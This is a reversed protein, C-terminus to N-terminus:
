MHLNSYDNVFQSFWLQFLSMTKNVFIALKNYQRLYFKNFNIQINKSLTLEEPDTKWSVCLTCSKEVAQLLTKVRLMNM